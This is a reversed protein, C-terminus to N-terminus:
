KCYIKISLPFLVDKSLLSILIFLWLQHKCFIYKAGTYVDWSYAFRFISQVLPQCTILWMKTPQVYIEITPQMTHQFHLLGQNIWIKVLVLCFPHFLHNSINKKMFITLKKALVPYFRWDFQIRILRSKSYGATNRYIFCLSSCWSHFM